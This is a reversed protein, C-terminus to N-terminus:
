NTFHIHRWTIQGTWGTPIIMNLKLDIIEGMFGYDALNFTQEEGNNDGVFNAGPWGDCAAFTLTGIAYPNSIIRLSIMPAPAPIPLCSPGVVDAKIKIKLILGEPADPDPVGYEPWGVQNYVNPDGGELYSELGNATLQMWADPSNGWPDVYTKWPHNTTIDPGTWPEWIDCAKPKDTFGMVRLPVYRNAGTIECQVIVEDDISFAGAAGELAGNDRLVSDAECHYFIIVDTGSPCTGVGEFCATDNASDVSTITATLYAIKQVAGINEHNLLPTM